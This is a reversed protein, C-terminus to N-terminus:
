PSVSSRTLPAEVLPSIQRALGSITPSRLLSGRPITRQLEQELGLQLEVAMLSDVGLNSLDEGLALDAEPSGLIRALRARIVGELVAVREAAQLELLRDSLPRGAGGASAAAAQDTGTDAFARLLAGQRLHPYAQFFRRWDVDLVLADRRRAQEVLEWMLATAQVPAIPRILKLVSERSTVRSAMGVDAWPGWHINTAPLGVARRKAALADLFANAAAYASQGPSGLLSAASSFTVFFDLPLERTALHLNMAGDLKPRLVVACREPTQQLVIGDDVLGAAHIVGRLPASSQSISRLLAAIAHRDGVDCAEVRVDAGLARLEAIVALAAADAGRRSCLVVNTVGQEIMSRTVQLGLAGTGGTVLYTADRRFRERLDARSRQPMRLVIKGPHQSQSMARFATSAADISYETAPLARYRGDAVRELVRGVLASAQAPRERFFREIDIAFFALNRMFPRLDLKHNQFIDRKGIEVFRGYPALLAFSNRLWEGALSNLVVDVGRGDTLARIEEVFSLSRSDFAREVGLTGLLERRAATGATAFIRAGRERAVQIAAMGVGGVGGHILVIEGRELQALDVLAHHATTFAVLLTAADRESVGDPLRAAFAARTTMFEALAGPGTVVVRDGPRFDTVGEGIAVVEGACEDGFWLPAGPLTPYIGLAKMVDRFNLGAFSVQLELEGQQPPRRVAPRLALSELSGPRDTDLKFPGRPLTSTTKSLMCASAQRHLQAVLDQGDRLAIQLEGTGSWLIQVLHFLDIEDPEAPLDVLTCRLEPLERALTRCFGWVPAQALAPSEDATVVAGATVVWLRPSADFTRAVAQVLQLLAITLSTATDAASAEPELGADAPWTVVLDSPNHEALAVCIRAFEREETGDGRSAPADFRSAICISELGEDVLRRALREGLAAGDGLIAWRGSAVPRSARLAAPEWRLEYRAGDLPARAEAAAGSRVAVFGDVRARENGLGDHILLAGEIHESDSAQPDISAQVWLEDAASFDRVELSRVAAPVFTAKADCRGAAAAGLVQFASDLLSPHLWGHSAAQAIDVPPVLRAVAEDEGLWVAAIGQFAPGYDLGAAALRSYLEERPLAVPCRALSATWPQDDATRARPAGRPQGQARASFHQVWQQGEGDRLAHVVINEEGGPETTAAVQVRLPQDDCVLPREFGAHQVVVVRDSSTLERVAEVALVLHLAAPALVMGRVRHDALWTQARIDLRSEFTPVATALRRGLLAGSSGAAAGDVLRLALPDAGLDLWHRERGFVYGPLVVPPRDHRAHMRQWDIEIGAAYLAGAAELLALLPMKDSQTSVCASRPALGAKRVLDILVAGPGLELVASPALAQVAALGDAFRVPARVHHAFYRASPAEGAGFLAGTLNSVLPLAPPSFEFRAAFAEFAALMPEMRASHFAHSVDLRRSAIGDRELAAGIAAVAQDDGSIVTAHPGNVAAVSVGPDDHLAAMATREDAVVALMAGGPPLDGMLRARECVLALADELSLVGAVTAAILEGLSHGCVVDPRVGWEAWVQSQAYGVSFLAPQAFRTQSLAGAEGPEFMLRLLSRGILPDVVHACANLAERYSPLVDYLDRGMGSRQTGQGSFVFAVRRRGVDSSGTSLGPHKRGDGFAALAALADTTTAVAVALRHAPFHERGRALTVCVDRLALEPRRELEAALAAANAQLAKASRASLVMLNPGEAPAAAGVPLPAEQLIVHANTGGFGFSNVGALRPSAQRPWPRVERPIVFTGETLGLNENLRQLNLHPPIREHELALAAKLLGAVGSATELHGINTKVSGIACIQSTARGEALVATLARMEIPDGLPTGTGHAEVYGLDSPDINAEELATRLVAQQAIGNPATLGNSRGDQNVATGRILAFIRNGDRRADAYRKLVVVGCGEGRVYGDAAADFTKCRGDSALMHAQSFAISVEPSLILSVGGALAHDIEGALLSRCALHVAVLSSSCATDVALSPGRLDLFYSLRNAAISHANGTGTYATIKELHNERLLALHTYDYGAVGVYVGTRSGALSGPRIGGHELAHWAVEMLVRQQPDMERAERPSIGFFQPDACDVEDLFGGWLTNVKGPSSADPDYLDDAAWRDSPVKTIGSRGNVLLHWFDDLSAASPMRCGLGVIAIPEM